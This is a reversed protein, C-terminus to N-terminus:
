ETEAHSYMSRGTTVQTPLGGAAMGRDVLEALILDTGTICMMLQMYLAQSSWSNGPAGILSVAIPLPEQRRTVISDYPIDGVPM